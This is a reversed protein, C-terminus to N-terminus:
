TLAIFQPNLTLMHKDKQIGQTSGM